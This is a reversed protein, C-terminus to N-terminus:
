TNSTSPEDLETANASTSADDSNAEDDSSAQELKFDANHSALLTRKVYRFIHDRCVHDTGPPLWGRTAHCLYGAPPESALLEEVEPLKVDCYQYFIQKQAPVMGPRFYVSGEPIDEVAEEATRTNPRVRDAKKYHVVQDRTTVMSHVGAQHRLRFDLTQYIRAGPEKRPDYGYKVWLMRWPGNKSYIAVCPMIVKLSNLRIKLHYRLLNQSWIPREEYMKQISKLEQALAPYVSLRLAYQKLYAENPETPLTDTLNFTYPTMGIGRDTRRKSHVDNKDSDEEKAAKKDPYRKDTYSYNIPKDSRTFNAPVIFLSSKEVMFSFTDVGSPLFEDLMCKPQSNEGEVKIPLYQFDCMSDFKYIRNVHGVVSTEVAERKVQNGDKTKKVKVKLLVGATKKNDGFVKKVFPNHPQFNLGLRKKSPQSLVESITRIGGLHEVAKEDNKVIAPFQVCILEPGLEVKEM